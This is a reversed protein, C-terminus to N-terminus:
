RAESSVKKIANAIAIARSKSMIIMSEKGLEFDDHSIVIFGSDSLYVSVEEERPFTIM